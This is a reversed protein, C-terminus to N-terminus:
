DEKCKPCVDLWVIDTNFEIISDPRWVWQSANCGVCYILAWDPDYLGQICEKCIPIRLQETINHEKNFGFDQSIYDVAMPIRIKLKTPAHKLHCPENLLELKAMYKNLSDELSVTKDLFNFNFNLM